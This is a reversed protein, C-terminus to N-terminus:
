RRDHMRLPVGCCHAFLGHLSAMAARGIVGQVSTRRRITASRESGQTPRPGAVWKDIKLPAM